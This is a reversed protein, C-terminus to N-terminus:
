RSLGSDRADPMWLYFFGVPGEPMADAINIQAVNIQTGGPLAGAAAYPSNVYDFPRRFAVMEARKLGARAKARAFADHLDGARDALGADVAQAGTLVRGDTLEALKAAPIGPRAEKVVGVFRKYFDDVMGRLIARQEDTLTSLPSAIEKNPGSTIAETQIGLRGLAAKVSVIQMIVGISGTVSTPYAVIEDAACALYYGGSATVDMMLAVVPKGTERRFRLVERYMADSATVGGGPTNLRLVVAKIRPDRAAQLKEQLLAVPNEGASLLGPRSANFIMGSVDVVAVRPSRCGGDSGVVNPVLRNRDPPTGLTLTLPGCGAALLGVLALGVVARAVRFMRCAFALPM